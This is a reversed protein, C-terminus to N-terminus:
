MLTNDLERQVRKLQTAISADLQQDEIKLVFGGIIEPDIEKSLEVDAKYTEVLLKRLQDVTSDTTTDATYLVAEVIGQDDRYLSSYHRIM